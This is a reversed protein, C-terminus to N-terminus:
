FFFTDCNALYEITLDVGNLGMCQQAETRRVDYKMVTHLVDYPLAVYATNIICYQMHKWRVTHHM